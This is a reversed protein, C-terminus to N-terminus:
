SRSDYFISNVEFAQVFNASFDVTRQLPEGAPVLRSHEKRIVALHLNKRDLLRSSPLELM